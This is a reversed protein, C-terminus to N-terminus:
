RGHARQEGPPVIGRSEVRHARQMRKYRRSNFAGEFGVVGPEDCQLM